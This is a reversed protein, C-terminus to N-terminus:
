VQHRSLETVTSPPPLHSRLVEPNALTELWYLYPLFAVDGPVNGDHAMLLIEDRRREADNKGSFGHNANRVVRLYQAVADAPPVIREGGRRAPVRVGGSTVRSSLFFGDQCARLGEVARRATPLLMRAVAAPLQAEISQLAKEARPLRCANDFTVVGLGQLTDLAAFGLLRRTGGDRDSALISQIRRGIQEVSLLAEFQRRPKYEGNADAYNALDTMQAFLKNLQEVWWTLAATTETPGIGPRPTSTLAGTALFLQLLEAAEGKRGVISTGLDYIVVGPIRAGAIAWVWPSLCLLLPALYADRTLLLDSQHHLGSGFVMEDKAPEPRNELLEPEEAVRMLVRALAARLRLAEEWRVLHLAINPFQSSGAETGLTRLSEYASQVASVLEGDPCAVTSLKVWAAMAVFSRAGGGVLRERENALMSADVEHSLGSLPLNHLVAWNTLGGASVIPAVELLHPSRHEYNELTEVEWRYASADVPHLALQAERAFGLIDHGFLWPPLQVRARHNREVGVM